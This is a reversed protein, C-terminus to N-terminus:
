TDFEGGRGGEWVGAATGGTIDTSAFCCPFMQREKDDAFVSEATQSLM